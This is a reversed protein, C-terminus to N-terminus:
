GSKSRARSRWSRQTTSDEAEQLEQSKGGPTGLPLSLTFGLSPGLRDGEALPINGQPLTPGAPDRRDGMKMGQCTPVLSRSGEFGYGAEPRAYLPLPHWGTARFFGKELSFSLVHFFFFSFFFFNIYVFIGRLRAPHPAVSHRSPGSKVLKRFPGEGGWKQLQM